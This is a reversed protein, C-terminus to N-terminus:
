CAELFLLTLAAPRYNSPLGKVVEVAYVSPFDPREGLDRWVEPCKLKPLRGKVTSQRLKCHAPLLLAETAETRATKSDIKNASGM